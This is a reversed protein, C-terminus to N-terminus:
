LNKAGIKSLRDLIVYDPFRDVDLKGVILVDKKQLDASRLISYLNLFLKEAGLTKLDFVFFDEKSGQFEDCVFVSVKPSYHKYRSGPTLINSGVAIESLPLNLRKAIEEVSIVGLRAIRPKGILSVITSEIGYVPYSGSDIIFLDNGFDNRVHEAVVPSVYGSKNASPAALPLDLKKILDRAIPHAPIRVACYEAGSTAAKLKQNRLPLVLTLPGPWLDVLSRAVHFNEGLKVCSDVMDLTSCHVILPNDRPRNKLEYIKSVASEQTALAALGYVTETPIAVVGGSLIIDCARLINDETPEVIM